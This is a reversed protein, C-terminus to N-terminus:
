PKEAPPTEDPFYSPPIPERWYPTFDVGQPPVVISPTMNFLAMVRERVDSDHFELEGRREYDVILAAWAGYPYHGFALLGVVGGFREYLVRHLKWMEIRPALEAVRDRADPRPKRDQEVDHAALRELTTRFDELHTRETKGLADNALRTRLEALKRARQIRDRREFEAHYDALEALEAPTATLGHQAVYHRFIRDRLFQALQVAQPEGGPALVVETLTEGLVSVVPHEAQVRAPALATAVLFMVLFKMSGIKGGMPLVLLSGPSRSPFTNIDLRLVPRKWGGGPIGTPGGPVPPV